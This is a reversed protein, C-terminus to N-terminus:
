HYKKWLISKEDWTKLAAVAQETMGQVEKVYAIKLPDIYRQIITDDLPLRVEKDHIYKINVAATSFMAVVNSSRILETWLEVPLRALQVDDIIKIQFADGIGAVVADLVRRSSRPHVKLFVTDGAVATTRIIEMYMAIENEESMLGSASLNSLLFLHCTTGKAFELLSRCYGNLDDLTRSVARVTEQVHHKPPVVLAVGDLEGHSLDLPLSLVATDFQFRRHGGWVCRRLFKKCASLASRVPRKADYDSFQTRDAVLGLSDGYEIKKARPYANGILPSGEGCFDRALFIEDFEATGLEDQLSGISGAYNGQMISKMRAASIFVVRAWSGVQALRKIVAAFELELEEPMLFDYMLLVNEYQSQEQSKGHWELAIFGAIFQLPGQVALLRKKM